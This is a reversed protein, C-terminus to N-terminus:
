SSIKPVLGAFPGFFLPKKPGTGVLDGHLLQQLAPSTRHFFSSVHNLRKLIDYHPQRQAPKTHRQRHHRQARPRNANGERPHERDPAPERCKPAECDAREKEDSDKDAAVLSVTDATERRLLHHSRHLPLPAAGAQCPQRRITIKGTFHMENLWLCSACFSSEGVPVGASGPLVREPQRERLAPGERM